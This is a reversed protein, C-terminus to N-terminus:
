EVIMATQNDFFGDFDLSQEKRIGLHRYEIIVAHFDQNFSKDKLKVKFAVNYHQNKFKFDQVPIIANSIGEKSVYAEDAVGITGSEDIFPIISIQKDNPQNILGDTQVVYINEITPTGYGEFYFQHGLYITGYEEMATRLIGSSTRIEFNSHTSLYYYIGSFMTVSSLLLLLLM